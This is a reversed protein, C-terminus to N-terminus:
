HRPSGTNMRSEERYPKLMRTAEGTITKWITTCTPVCVEGTAALGTAALGNKKFLDHAHRHNHASAVGAMAAVAAVFSGQM